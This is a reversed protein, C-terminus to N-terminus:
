ELGKEQCTPCLKANLDSLRKLCKGCYPYGYYFSKAHTPELEILCDSCLIAKTRAVIWAEEKLIIKHCNSCEIETPKM